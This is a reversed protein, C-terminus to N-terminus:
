HPMTRSVRFLKRMRRKGLYWPTDWFHRLFSKPVRHYPRLKLQM